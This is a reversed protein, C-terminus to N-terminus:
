TLRPYAGANNVLIDVPGIENTVQSTMMTVADPDTLDASIEIGDAGPRRAGDLVTRAQEIPAFHNVAITAGVAALAKATAAGLDSTLRTLM